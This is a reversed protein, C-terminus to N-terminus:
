SRKLRQREYVPVLEDPTSRALDIMRIAFLRDYETRTYPMMGAIGDTGTAFILDPQRSGERFWQVSREL